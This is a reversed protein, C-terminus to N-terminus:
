ANAKIAAEVMAKTIKGGASRATISTEDLNHKEALEKSIPSGWVNKAVLGLKRKVDMMTITTEGSKRAEGTRDEESFDSETKSNKEALERAQKSAFLSAVKTKPEEGMAKRVDDVTIKDGSHVIDEIKVGSSKALEEAKSSSFMSVQKVKPCVSYIKNEDIKFKAAIASIMERADKQSITSM